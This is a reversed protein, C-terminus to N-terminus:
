GEDAPTPSAGDSGLSALAENLERLQTELAAIVSRNDPPGGLFSPTSPARLIKLQRSVRDRAETLQERLTKQMNSWPMAM